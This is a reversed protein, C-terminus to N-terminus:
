AVVELRACHLAARSPLVFIGQRDLLGIGTLDRVAQKVTDRQASDDPDNILERTLESLTLRV